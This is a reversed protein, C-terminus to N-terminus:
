TNRGGFRKEQLFISSAVACVALGVALMFVGQMASKYCEIVVTRIEKPLTAIYDMSGRVGKVITDVEGDHGTLRRTLRVRLGEQVIAAGISVGAVTGLTRFLYSVATAVAQDEGGAAAILAILTTTLGTGYGLGSMTIGLVIGTSWSSTSSYLVTAAGLAALVYACVTLLYYRGTKQMIIGSGLSGLVGGAIAPLLRLGAAGAPLSQIVQFYFPTYFLVATHAACCFFNALNAALITRQRVIHPPAFPETAIHSEAFVFSFFFFASACLCAIPLLSQFSKNGGQDLGILATFVALVMIVAGLFDVRKLRAKFPTPSDNSPLHLFLCVMLIASLTAPFQLIFSWRWGFSDAMLGGLPAGTAAGTAFIINLCGQWSGRSRLPVIDNVLISVVTTMGGGGIGAFARAVILQTMSTSLGCALCGLGFVAYAFLLCSKRGFIDSLKGYLPQFSTTTLLYATAIWSTRNLENLENGIVGYSSVVITNDMASLFIGIALAPLIYQIKVGPIRPKDPDSEAVGNETEASELNPLLPDQETAM